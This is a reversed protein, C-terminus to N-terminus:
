RKKKAAASPRPNAEPDSQLAAQSDPTEGTDDLLNTQAPDSPPKPFRKAREESQIEALLEPDDVMGLQVAERRNNEDNLFALMMEPRNNFRKRIKGPLRMFQTDITAVKNMMEHYSISPMVGYIPQRGNPDGVLRQRLHKQSLKNIDTRDVESQEAMSVGSINAHKRPVIRENM